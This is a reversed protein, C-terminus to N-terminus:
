MYENIESYDYDSTLNGELLGLGTNMTDQELLGLTYNNLPNQYADGALGMSLGFNHKLVLLMVGAILGSSLANAKEKDLFKYGAWSGGVALGLAIANRAIPNGKTYKDFISNTKNSIWLTTFAGAGAVAGNILMSTFDINMKVPNRRVRRKYTRKKMTRRRRKRGPNRVPTSSMVPNQRRRVKRKVRTKKRKKRMRKYRGKKEIPNLVVTSM